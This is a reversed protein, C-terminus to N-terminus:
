DHSLPPGSFPRQPPGSFPRKRTGVGRASATLMSGIAFRPMCVDIMLFHHGQFPGNGQESEELSDAKSFARKKGRRGKSQQSVQNNMEVSKVSRKRGSVSIDMKNTEDILADLPTKNQCNETEKPAKEPAQDMNVDASLKNKLTIPTKLYRPIGETSIKDQDVVKGLRHVFMVYTILQLKPSVPSSSVSEM